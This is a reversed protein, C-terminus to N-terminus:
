GPPKGHVASRTQGPAYSSSGHAEDSKGHTVGSTSAPPTTTGRGTGSAAGASPSAPPTPSGTPSQAAPTSGGGSSPTNRHGRSSGGTSGPHRSASGDRHRAAPATGSARASTASGRGARAPQDGSARSAIRDFADNLAQAPRLDNAAADRPAPIESLQAPEDAPRFSGALPVDSVPVVGLGALVLGCLWLLLLSGTVRGAAHLRRARRGSPDALVSPAEAPARLGRLDVVRAQGPPGVRESVGVM